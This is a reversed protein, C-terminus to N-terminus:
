EPINYEDLADHYGTSWGKEIGEDYGKRYGDEYGENYGEAHGDSFAKQTNCSTLFLVSIAILMIAKNMNCIRM